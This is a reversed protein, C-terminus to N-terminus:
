FNILVTYQYKVVREENPKLTITWTLENRKNVTWVGEERLDIKPDADGKLYDGSFQRKIILKADAARHNCLRLEGNVTVKRFRRGGIYTVDREANGPAGQQNEYEVHRARISLAKNVRLTAEEGKNTWFVQRQGNFKGASTVMAPATTMPFALPNKFKLADWVDDQLPEGTSPDVRRGNNATPNGWEDRNDPITWDVIREYDADAKGVSLAVASGKKLTRKGISHYILDITDGVNPAVVPASAGGGARMNYAANQTVMGNDFQSSVGRGNLQQFFATWTQTAALPSVVHSFQVSPYGSIISVDSDVLDGLENRIVAQQEISLTKPNTLDVKYSPAWSLGHALYSIQVPGAKEAILLLVPKKVTRTDAQPQGEAELSVIDGLDVYSIGKETKLILFRSSPEPTPRYGSYEPPTLVESAPAEKKVPKVVVGTIPSKTSRSQLTVKLGALEDQLNQGLPSPTEAKSDRNEVRVEIAGNSEIWFTGHVPEPVDTLRYTGPGDLTVHRKVVALGNKFLAVSVVKSSAPKEGEGPESAWVLGLASLLLALTLVYRRM